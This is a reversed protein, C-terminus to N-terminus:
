SRSDAFVAISDCEGSEKDYYWDYSLVGPERSSEEMARQAVQVFTDEDVKLRLRSVLVIRDQQGTPASM